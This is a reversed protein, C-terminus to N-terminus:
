RAARYTLLGALSCRVPYMLTYAPSGTGEPPELPSGIEKGKGAELPQGFEKAQAGQETKLALLRMGQIETETMM